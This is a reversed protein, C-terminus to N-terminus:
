LTKMEWASQAIAVATVNATGTVEIEWDRALFGSKLRFPNSSTATYTESVGDAIVKMTVPYANAVVQGFAMAGPSPLQGIKSRWTYTLNGNGAFLAQLAGAADVVILRDDQDRPPRCLWGLHDRM